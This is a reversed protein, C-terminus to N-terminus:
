IALALTKAEGVCAHQHWMIGIRQPNTLGTGIKSDGSLRHRRRSGQGGAIGQLVDKDRSYRRSSGCPLHGTLIHDLCGKNAKMAASYEFGPVTGAERGVVNWLSPGVKNVGIENSHCNQCIRQFTARGAIPDGGAEAARADPASAILMVFLLIRGNM